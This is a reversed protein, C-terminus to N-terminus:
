GIPADSVHRADPTFRVVILLPTTPRTVTVSGEVVLAEETSIETLLAIAANGSPDPIGIEDVPLAIVTRPHCGGLGAGDMVISDGDEAVAPDTPNVSVTFPVPNMLPDTTLHFPNGRVVVYTAPVCNCAAMPADSMALAPVACTVTNLGAGPPPVDSFKLKVILAGLLGAGDMVISDGDEAVAPVTPNVSVTFPVPNMFPDTTLHFPKDRVVVYTAPVCNCAAMPADSM